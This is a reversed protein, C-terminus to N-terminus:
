ASVAAATSRPTRSTGAITTPPRTNWPSAPSGAAARAAAAPADAAHPRLGGVADEDSAVRDLDDVDGVALGDQQPVERRAAHAAERSRDALVEVRHLGVVEERAPRCARRVVPLARHASNVVVTTRLDAWRRAAFAAGIALSTREPACPTAEALIASCSSGSGSAARSHSPVIISM